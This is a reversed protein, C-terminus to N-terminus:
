PRLYEVAVIHVTNAFHEPWYTITWEGFRKVQLPRGVSDRQVSDGAQFPNAALQEFARLLKQRHRKTVAAFLDLVVDDAAYKYPPTM